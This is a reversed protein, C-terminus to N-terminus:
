AHKRVAAGPDLAKLRIKIDRVFELAGAIPVNSHQMALVLTRDISPNVLPSAVLRGARIEEHIAFIPLISFAQGTAVLQILSTLSDAEIVVQLSVSQRQAIAEIERRNGLQRSSLVLPKDALSAFPVEPPMSGHSAAGVFYLPHAMIPEPNFRRVVPTDFLLAFDIRGDALWEVLHASAGEVIRLEAQPYAKRLSQTLPLALFRAISPLVGIIARQVQGQEGRGVDVRMQAIQDELARAWMRFRRGEPTVRVGRGDRYFLAVGLDSELERIARSLAPQSVGLVVAAKSLSRLEVVKLFQALTRTNM